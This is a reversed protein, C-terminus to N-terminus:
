GATPGHGEGGAPRPAGGASGPGARTM